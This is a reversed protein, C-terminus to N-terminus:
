MRLTHDALHSAIVVSGLVVCKHLVDRRTLM